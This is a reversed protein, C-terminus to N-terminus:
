AAKYLLGGTSSLKSVDPMQGVLGDISPLSKALQSFQEASVNNKV